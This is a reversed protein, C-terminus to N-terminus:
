PESHELSGTHVDAVVTTLYLGAMGTARAAALLAALWDALFATQRAQPAIFGSCTGALFAVL